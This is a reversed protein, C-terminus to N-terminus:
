CFSGQECDFVSYYRPINLLKYEYQLKNNLKEWGHIYFKLMNVLYNSTTAVETEDPGSLQNNEEGACLLM